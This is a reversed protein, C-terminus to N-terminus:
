RNAASNSGTFSSATNSNAAPPHITELEKKLMTQSTTGTIAILSTAIDAAITKQNVPDATPLRDRSQEFAARAKEYEGTLLYARGLLYFDECDQPAAGFRAIYAAPDKDVDRRNEEFASLPINATRMEAIAPAAPQDSQKAAFVFYYIGFGIAAGALLGVIFTGLGFGGSTPSAEGDADNQSFVRSTPEAAARAKREIAEKALPSEIEVTRAQSIEPDLDNSPPDRHVITDNGVLPALEGTELELFDEDDDAKSDFPSSTRATAITDEETELTNLSPMEDTLAEAPAVHDGVRVAVATMNDEAGRDYVLDKLYSCVDELSSGHSLVRRIENDSIHRTIGDSCILFSTGPEVMITKLDPQVTGEAGLARSIVNKSPHNEAQQETMRGARVEEAVVSHDDTERFINGQPDIRYIRSDGVHGITAINGKLHLAAVTTAMSALQPLEHAMQFIASNAQEMASLMATEADSSPSLNSFAEGLIEVAMQSAVEGANAGGVGDAVAFIGIQPMELFSDENEPRKDSLGRESVAASSIRLDNNM